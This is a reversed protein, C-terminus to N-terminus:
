ADLTINSMVTAISEPKQQWALAAAQDFFQTPAVGGTSFVNLLGGKADPKPASRALEVSKDIAAQAESEIKTLDAETALGRSTLFKKFQPIPDKAMWQQVEADSRYPLGLAGDRGVKAGAFGSHDYWRYTKCEIVSPGEGARARDVAAKAAAHVAAVDNGDVITIPIGLGKAHESVNEIPTNIRYHTGINYQNNEIVMIYPLKYLTASRIASYFYVSNTAGEGAFSVAVRKNKKLVSSWAAGAGIYWSAGVIGNMGLIGKSVDTMHMSGGYGKNYGTQKFFIEASMKNIDGGKAILHGHGRHTSVIYDDPNLATCVGNAVAEEGVYLHFSGYLNDKGSVFLDKMTTEWKRSTVMRQYLGALKEKGLAALLDDAKADTLPALGAGAQPPAVIAHTPFKIPTTSVFAASVGATGLVKLFTRRDLKTAKQQESM